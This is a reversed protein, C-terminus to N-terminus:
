QLVRSKKLLPTMIYIFQPGKKKQEESLFFGGGRM